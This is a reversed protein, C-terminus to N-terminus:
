DKVEEEEKKRGGLDGSVSAGVKGAKYEGRERERDRSKKDKWRQTVWIM